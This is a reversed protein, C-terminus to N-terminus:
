YKKNSKIRYSYLFGKEYYKQLVEPVKVSMWKWDDLSKSFIDNSLPKVLTWDYDFMANKQRLRFKGIKIIHPPM